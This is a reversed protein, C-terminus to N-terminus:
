RAYQLGVSVGNCRCEDEGDGRAGDRKEDAPRHLPLADFSLLEQGTAACSITATMSGDRRIKQTLLVELALSKKLSYFPVRLHAPLQSFAATELECLNFLIQMSPANILNKYLILVMNPPVGRKPAIYFKM